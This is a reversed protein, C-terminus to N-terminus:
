GVNIARTPPNRNLGPWQRDQFQIPCWVTPEAVTGRFLVPSHVPEATLQHIVGSPDPGPLRTYCRPAVQEKQEKVVAVPLM